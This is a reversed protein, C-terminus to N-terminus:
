LDGDIRFVWAFRMPVAAPTRIEHAAGSLVLYLYDLLDAHSTIEAVPGDQGLRVYYALEWKLLYDSVWRLRSLILDREDSDNWQRVHLLRSHAPPVLPERIILADFKASVKWHVSRIPDGLRYPRLDYDEAFGGGLKPKLIIGRPLAITHSPKQPAPLVLVCSKITINHPLCFLGILSVVWLRKTEFFTVGTRTTDITIEYQDGEQAGFVFRRWMSFDDGSVKLWLKVCRAPFKARQHVNLAVVGDAGRELIRPSSLTVSRTLMGPLSILFDFPLLLLILLFLYWAFWFPYLIYFIASCALAFAYIIRTIGM